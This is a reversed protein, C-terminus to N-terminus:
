GDTWRDLLADLKDFVATFGAEAEPGGWFTALHEPETFARWLLDRPADVVRSVTLEGRRDDEKTPTSM